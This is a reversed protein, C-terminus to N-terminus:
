NIHFQREVEMEESAEDAWQLLGLPCVAQEKIDNM